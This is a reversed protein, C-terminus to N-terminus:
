FLDPRLSKLSLYNLRLNIIDSSLENVLAEDELNGKIKESIMKSEQMISQFFSEGELVIESSSIDTSKSIIKLEDDMLMNLFNHLMIRCKEIIDSSRESGNLQKELLKGNFIKESESLYYITTKLKHM